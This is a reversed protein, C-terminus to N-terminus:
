LVDTSISIIIEGNDDNKEKKTIISAVNEDFVKGM